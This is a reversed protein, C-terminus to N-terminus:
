KIYEKRLQGVEGHEVFQDEIGMLKVQAQIKRKALGELVASGFGGAKANEEIIIAKSAKKILSFIAPDILKVFRANIITSKTKQKKAVELARVLQNGVSIIVPAEPSGKQIVESKGLSISKPSFDFNTGCGRPYRLAIPGKHCVSFELMQELEQNDKPALVTLNPIHRLFSIDFVGHHTPGDEGVLGARDLAFVVPLNQLCVDHIIQDYSRQLFTSYIAVVPKMGEAALGAAFTVAHEECIGVDFFQSPLQNAFDALGTGSPMAATIAVVKKNRKAIKLLKDGFAASFSRGNKAKLSQGNAVEFPSVGHFKDPSDQAIQYGMGKKTRAHILSPGKLKDAKKLARELASVNHGDVPGIYNIGLKEFILGPTGVKKLAKKFSKLKALYEEDGAACNEILERMQKKVNKYIQTKEIRQTYGSLAGVNPSISMKNDNLVIILKTGLYGVQNIAELALGGTLSGDGIVAVTRTDKDQKKAAEAIGMAASISTSAHGAGFCDYKSESRKTFGSIGGRQRLKKFKNKRGTLIKHTYCQHSVDWVIKDKPCDLFKHLALTLEVAGLNSALHGGTQSVNELIFERIERALNDLQRSNLNKIEKPSNIKSLM